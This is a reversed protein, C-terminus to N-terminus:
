DQPNDLSIAMRPCRLQLVERALTSIHRQLPWPRARVEGITIGTYADARYPDVGPAEQLGAASLELRVADLEDNWGGAALVYAELAEALRQRAKEVPKPDLGRLRAQLAALTDRREREVREREAREAAALRARAFNVAGEATAYEFATITTDGALLRDHLANFAGEADALAQAAEAVPDTTATM